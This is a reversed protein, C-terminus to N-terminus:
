QDTTESAVNYNELGLKLPQIVRVVSKPYMTVSLFTWCEAGPGPARSVRAAVVYAEPTENILYGFQEHFTDPIHAMMQVEEPAPGPSTPCAYTIVRVVPYPPIELDRRDYDLMRQMSDEDIYCTDPTM